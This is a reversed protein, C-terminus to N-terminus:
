FAFQVYRSRAALLIGINLRIARLERQLRKALKKQSFARKFRQATCSSTLTKGHELLRISDNVFLAFRDLTIRASLLVKTLSESSRRILNCNRDLAEVESIVLKLDAVENSLAILEIPANKISQVFHALDATASLANLIGTAIGLAEM